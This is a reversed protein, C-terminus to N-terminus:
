NGKECKDLLEKINWFITGGNHSLIGCWFHYAIWTIFSTQRRCRTWLWLSWRTSGFSRSPQSIAKGFCKVLLAFALFTSIGYFRSRYRVSTLLRKLIWGLMLNMRLMLVCHTEISIWFLAIKPSYALASNADFSGFDPEINIAYFQIIVINWSNKQKM